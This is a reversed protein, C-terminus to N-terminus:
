KIYQNTQYYRQMYCTVLQVTTLNGNTMFDQLENITADEIKHGKCLPMAHWASASVNNYTTSPSETYDGPAATACVVLTAAIGFLSVMNRDRCTVM